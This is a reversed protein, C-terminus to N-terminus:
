IVAHPLPRGLLGAVLNEVALDVMRRRTRVSASGVHPALVVQALGTLPHDPALPESEFVDLGAGAITGSRLAEVLAVEDVIPGRATNILVAERKMLRLARADILHRTEQNLAVHLSVVDSRELLSDLPVAEIGQIERPTRSWAIVKMGFARARVAVAQGIPGLGVVGLTAGALDRGLLLAPSWRKEGAWGGSRVFGDAEILRRGTALMLALALEATTETLVGPTNGVAIGRARAAALDIHDVGVSVTSIVKLRPAAEILGADIRDSLVCLLGECDTLSRALDDPTPASGGRWVRGHAVGDLPALPGAAGHGLGALDHSIFAAPLPSAPTTRSMASGVPRALVLSGGAAEPSAADDRRAVRFHSRTDWLSECSFARDVKVQPTWEFYRRAGM